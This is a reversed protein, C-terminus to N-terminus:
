YISKAKRKNEDIEKELAGKEREHLYRRTEFALEIKSSHYRFKEMISNFNTDKELNEISSYIEIIKQSGRESIEKCIELTEICDMQYERAENLVQITNDLISKRVERRSVYIFSGGTIAAAFFTLIFVSPLYKLLLDDSIKISVAKEQIIRSLVELNFIIKNYNDEQKKITNLIEKYNEPFQELNSGISKQLTITYDTINPILTTINKTMYPDINFKSLERAYSVIAIFNMNTEKLFNSKLEKKEKDNLNEENLLIFKYINSHSKSLLEKAELIERQALFYNDTLGLIKKKLQNVYISGFLSNMMLFCALLIALLNILWGLHPKRRILKMLNSGM